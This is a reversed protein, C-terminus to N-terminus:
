SHSSDLNLKHSYNQNQQFRISKIHEVTHNYYDQAFKLIPPAECLMFQNTQIQSRIQHKNM